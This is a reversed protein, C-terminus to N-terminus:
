KGVSTGSNCMWSYIDMQREALRRNTYEKTIKKLALRQLELWKISDEIVSQLAEALKEVNGEPFILGAEGIVNPIEGSSSGIVPIGEAMAEILIHGFQEVWDPTSRSPLVLVDLTRLVKPVEENKVAPLLEAPINQQALIERLHEEFQGKGLAVFTFTSPDLLALANVLDALGKEAAIRGIYGIRVKGSSRVRPESAIGDVGIQPMVWVPKQFGQQRLVEEADRNGAIACSSHSLNYGQLFAKLGSLKYPLNWWTFFTAKTKPSHRLCANILQAYSIAYAGQEVHLVDPQFQKVISSVTGNFFYAGEKGAFRTKLAHHTVDNSKLIEATHEYLPGKWRDPTLLVVECGPLNGLERIKGQNAHISYTHGVYLVKM